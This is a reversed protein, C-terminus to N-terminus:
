RKLHYKNILRHITRRDIGCSDATKSINWDNQDLQSKLYKIEFQEVVKEKAEHYPLDNFSTEQFKLNDRSVVSPLDQPKIDPASALYYSREIV